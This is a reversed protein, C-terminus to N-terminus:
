FSIINQSKNVGRRPSNESNADFFWMSLSIFLLIVLSQSIFDWLEVSITLIQLGHVLVWLIMIDCGFVEERGVGLIGCFM